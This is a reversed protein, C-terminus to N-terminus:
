VGPLASTKRKNAKGMGGRPDRLYRSNKGLIYIANLTVSVVSRWSTGFNLFFPCHVHLTLNLRTRTVM